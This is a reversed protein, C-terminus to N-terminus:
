GRSHFGPLKLGALRLPDLKSPNQSKTKKSVYERWEKMTENFKVFIYTHDSYPMLPSLPLKTELWKYQLSDNNFQQKFIEWFGVEHFTYNYHFHIVNALNFQVQPYNKYLIHNLHLPCNYSIDLLSVKSKIPMLAASLAAEELFYLPSVFCSDYSLMSNIEHDNALIEFFERWRRFLGTKRRSVILGSNFYFAVDEQTLVTKFYPRDSDLKCLKFLRDWLVSASDNPFKLGIGPFWVPALAADIKKNLAFNKPENLIVSDSDMFILIDEKCHEEAYACSYIKNALPYNTYETNLQSDNHFVLLRNLSDYINKELKGYGRPNFSYIPANKYYGAFKRISEFLLIAESATKNNEICAIFALSKNKM